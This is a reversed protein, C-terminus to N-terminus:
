GAGNRGALWALLDATVEARNSENLLEHRAGPYLRFTVEARGAAQLSEVLARVSKGRGGVPDEGGAVVLLPLGRPLAALAQPRTAAILGRVLATWSGVSAAFGCLPDAIYADVEAPDRSLWDYPTRADPVARAYAGFSLAHLIASRGRQGLRLREARAVLLGLRAVPPPLGPPGSLIAAAYGGAERQLASLALVSGMSHGLLVLPRGPWLAIARARVGAVDAVLGDWGDADCMHGPEGGAAATAGHGRVDHAIAAWGAGNLAQALRAYRGCHEALGHVIQVAGRPEARDWVRLALAQGDGAQLREERGGPRPESTSAM